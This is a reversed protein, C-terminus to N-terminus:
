GDIDDEVQVGYLDVLEDADGSYWGMLDFARAPINDDVDVGIDQCYAYGIAEKSFVLNAYSNVDDSVANVSTTIFCPVGYPAGVFGNMNTFGEGFGEVIQKGVSAFVSADDLGARIKAWSTPHWVAFYPGPANQVELKGIATLLDAVTVNNAGSGQENVITAFSVADLILDDEDKAMARGLQDGYPALDSWPDARLASKSIRVLAGREVPTLTVGDTSATAPTPVTAETLGAVTIASFRPIVISGAGLPVETARVLQRMVRSGYAASQADASVIQGILDNLTTTDSVAM